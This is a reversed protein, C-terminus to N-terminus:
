SVGHQTQWQTPSVGFWAKFRRSFISLEAYGLRLALDTMSVNGHQLLRVAESKRVDDLLQRYTTEHMTLIRQLKKPHVGMSLATNEKSCDGTALLMKMASEIHLMEDPLKNIRQMELQDAILTDLIADNLKPKYTLFASSFYIADTDANFEVECGLVKTFLATHESVPSQRLCVKDARWKPGVLEKMVKNVLCVALQAKQVFEQKEDSLRVFRVECSNQGYLALNLVIGEAHLYIYKQAVNLADLITPQRSMYAGILGVTSMSQQSGLKLGFCPEDCAAAALELLQLYHSYVVFSDPDRLQAPLIGAHELLTNPNVGYRRVLGEFGALSSSRILSEM